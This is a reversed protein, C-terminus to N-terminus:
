YFIWQIYVLDRFFYCFACVPYEAATKRRASKGGICKEGLVGNKAEEQRKEEVPVDETVKKRSFVGM